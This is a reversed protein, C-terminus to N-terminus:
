EASFEDSHNNRYRSWSNLSGGDDRNFWDNDEVDEWSYLSDLSEEEFVEDCEEAIDSYQMSCKAYYVMKKKMDNLTEQTYLGTNAIEDLLEALFKKKM